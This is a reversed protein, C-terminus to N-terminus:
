TYFCFSRAFDMFDIDAGVSFHSPEGLPEAAVECGDFLAKRTVFHKVSDYDTTCLMRADSNLPVTATLLQCVVAECGAMSFAATISEGGKLAHDTLM